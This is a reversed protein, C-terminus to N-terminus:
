IPDGTNLVEIYKRIWRMLHLSKEQAKFQATDADKVPVPFLLGVETEYWLVGDRYYQFTSFGQINQKLDTNM